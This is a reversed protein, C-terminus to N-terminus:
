ARDGGYRWWGLGLGLLIPLIFVIPLLNNQDFLPLLKLPLLLLGLAALAMWLYRLWHRARASGVALAIGLPLALFTFPNGLFLNEGAYTVTHDTVLWMVALALGPIGVVLGVAANYLGFAVRPWKKPNATQADSPALYRRGLLFSLGGLLLGLALSGPWHTPPEDPTPERGADFYVMEESILPVKEGAENVYELETVVEALEAPLFMEDWRTIPQDIDDNMLFMLLMEM